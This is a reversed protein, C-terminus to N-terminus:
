FFSILIRLRIFRSLPSHTRDMRSYRCRTGSPSPSSSCFIFLYLLEAYKNRISSPSRRLSVPGPNISLTYTIMIIPHFRCIVFFLIRFVFVWMAPRKDSYRRLQHCRVLLLLFTIFYQTTRTHTCLATAACRRVGFPAGFSLDPFGYQRIHSM